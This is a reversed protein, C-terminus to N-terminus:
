DTADDKRKIIRVERRGHAQHAGAADLESNDIFVVDGDQGSSELAERIRERTAEDIANSSIITVADSGDTKIMRLTKQHEIEHEAHAGGLDHLDGLDIKRGDVEMEFGDETRTVQATNGSEGTLLRTEGVALDHLNFGADSSDFRFAQHGARDDDVEIEIRTRYEEGAIAATGILCAWFFVFLTRIRM